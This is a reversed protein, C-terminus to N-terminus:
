VCRSRAHWFLAESSGSLPCCESLLQYQFISHRCTWVTQEFIISKSGTL